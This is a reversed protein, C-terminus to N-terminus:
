LHDPGPRYSVFFPGFVGRFFVSFANYILLKPGTFRHRTERAGHMERHPFQHSHESVLLGRMSDRAHCSEPGCL